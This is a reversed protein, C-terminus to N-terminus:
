AVQVGYTPCAKLAKRTPIRFGAGMRVSLGAYAVVAAGHRAHPTFSERRVAKKQVSVINNGGAIQWLVIIRFLPIMKAFWIYPLNPMQLSLGPSCFQLSSWERRSEANVDISSVATTPVLM